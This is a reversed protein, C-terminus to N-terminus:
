ASNGGPLRVVFETSGGESVFAIQGSCREVIIRHTIHLGMGPGSGPPKSTFFPKFIHPRNEPTIGLGHDAIGVCIQRGEMWTRLKITDGRPSADIANELLNGWAQILGSGNTRIAPLDGMFAKDITLQKDRLKHSVIMLASQLSDNIDVTHEGAEEDRSYKKVAMVLDTIRGVSDEIRGLGQLSSLLAELWHLADSLLNPALVQRAGELNSRGWGVDVLTPAIQWAEEVGM